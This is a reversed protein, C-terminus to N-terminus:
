KKKKYLENLGKLMDATINYASDKYYILDPSGAFIYSYGKDKNYDKLYNEIKKKVDQLKKVTEDQMEQDMLQKRSKLNKDMEVLEQQRNAVEAQSLTSGVKQLDQYKNRFNNEMSALERGLEQDKSNLTSRVDKFYEFQNQISDMEFYAIRFGGSVATSNSVTSVTKKSSFHLYFLVAVALALVINLGLTFNKM